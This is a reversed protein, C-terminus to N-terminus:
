RRSYLRGVLTASAALTDHYDNSSAGNHTLTADEPNINFPASGSVPAYASDGAFSATLTYPGPTQALTIQCTGHGSSDTTAVCSQSGITLAVPAVEIPLGLKRRARDEVRNRRLSDRLVNQAIGYLWPLTSGDAEDRFSRRKLWARAFVEATLDAAHDGVRSRAWSFVQGVRRDYV